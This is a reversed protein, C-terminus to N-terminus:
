KNIKIIQEISLRGMARQYGEKLFLSATEKANDSLLSNPNLLYQLYIDYQQIYKVDLKNQLDGITAHNGVANDIFDSLKVIAPKPKNEMIDTINNTYVELKKDKEDCIQNTVAMVIDAVNDNTYSALVQKGIKRATYVDLEKFIGVEEVALGRSHDEILDHCLDASIIEPDNIQFDEILHLTSRIPHNIYQQGNTRKDDIHYLMALEFSDKILKNENLGLSELTDFFRVILGSTGYMETIKGLSLGRVSEPTIISSYDKKTDSICRSEM